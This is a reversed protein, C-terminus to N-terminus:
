KQIDLHWDSIRIPCYYFIKQHYGTPYIAILFSATGSTMLPFIFGNLANPLCMLMLSSVVVMTLCAGGPGGVRLTVASTTRLPRCATDTVGSPTLFERAAPLSKISRGVYFLCLCIFDSMCNLWVFIWAPACLSSKFKSQLLFIVWHELRTSSAHM